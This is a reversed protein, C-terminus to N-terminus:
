LQELAAGMRDIEEHTNYHALGVRVMGHEAYGLRDMVEVAYYHGAWVYINYHALHEAVQQATCGDWTFVVTPVREDFRDSDTIGHITVPAFKQLMDILHGALRMEYDRLAAMGAHIELRNGAMGAFPDIYDVGYEKGLKRLYDVAQATAHITEFSKTGTEWRHPPKDKAPRVKYAPLDALLDYRGWMVGIHPGFFKYASCLLFDCGLTQVDLPLHPASQVADVVHLAGVSHAMEAIQPIPNITGLANSAHVTAVVRTQSSLATEYSRLNLTYDEPNLDIWRVTLGLDQAVELWPSVNADHDMRTLIIEDDPGLTRAIARSLNFNLTTMNPGFVIEDERPANLFDAVLGRARKTLEDSRRSTIFAGGSNANAFRYYDSVASIVSEPVQTGAPNDFFVGEGDRIAPFKQRVAQVDFSM